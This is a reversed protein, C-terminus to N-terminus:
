GKVMAIAVFQDGSWSSHNADVSARNVSIYEWFYADKNNDFVLWDTRTWVVMESSNQVKWM